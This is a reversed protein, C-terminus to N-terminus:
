STTISQKPSCAATRSVQMWPWARCCSKVLIAEMVLSRARIHSLRPSWCGVKCGATHLAELVSAAIATGARVETGKGLEDVLVLSDRTVDELM